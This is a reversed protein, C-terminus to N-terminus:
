DDDDDHDDDDHDDDDHDDDHDDDDHDDDDDDHDDRGERADDDTEGIILLGDGASAESEVGLAPASDVDGEGPQLVGASITLLWAGMLVTM